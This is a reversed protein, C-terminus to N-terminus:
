ECGSGPIRFGVPNKKKLIGATRSVAFDSDTLEFASPADESEEGYVRSAYELIANEVVNRCFRGNGCEAKGAASECISLVKEQAQLSITFGRKKAELEAIQLMERASYDEFTISFPVRSRLGPNRAFFSEMRDPYGAFIVITDDRNNEMERVITDIAEDGYAGSLNEVLSYAEDIFLVKGKANRFVERVKEATQGEYKAVLDARGVEILDGCPLLGIEKFIGAVIRAVTTKATGPNGVFEMNLAASLSGSGNAAMEKKMRAFAAIKKVQKKVESLGVLDNLMDMHSEPRGPSPVAIYGINGTEGLKERIEKIAKRGLNRVRMLDEDSMTRLKEVINVGAHKLWTYTHLSLELSEIPTFTFGSESDSDGDCDDVYVDEYDDLLDPDETGYEAEEQKGSTKESETCIMSFLLRSMGNLFFKDPLVKEWKNAGSLDMEAAAMHPFAFSIITRMRLSMEEPLSILIMGHGAANEEAFGAIIRIVADEALLMAFMESFYRESILDDYEEDTYFGHENKRVTSIDKLTGQVSTLMYVKRGNEYLDRVEASRSGKVTGYNNFIWNFDKVSVTIGPSSFVYGTVAGNRDASIQLGLLEKEPILAASYLFRESVRKMERERDYDAKGSAITLESINDPRETLSKMHDRM